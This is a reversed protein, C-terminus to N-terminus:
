MHKFIANEGSIYIRTYGHRIMTQTINDLSQEYEICVCKPKWVTWDFQQFIDFNMGEVDLNIFDFESGVQSRLTELTIVDVETETYNVYNYWLERHKDSLTGVMDGNSSFFKLKGNANGIAKEIVTCSSNTGGINEKLKPIVEAAPEVYVGTWGMDFLKRTNSFTIGDHAGIDLFRGNKIDKLADVIFSEEDNQSYPM